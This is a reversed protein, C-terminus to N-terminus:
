ADMTLLNFSKMACVVLFRFPTSSMLLTLPPTLQQFMAQKTVAKLHVSM